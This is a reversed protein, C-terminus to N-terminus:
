WKAMEAAGTARSAAVALEDELTWWFAQKDPGFGLSGSCLLGRDKGRQHIGGAIREGLLM